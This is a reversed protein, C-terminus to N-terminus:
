PEKRPGFDTLDFPRIGLIFAPSNASMKYNGKLPNEFKPDGIVNGLAFSPLSFIKTDTRWIL